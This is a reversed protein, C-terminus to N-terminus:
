EDPVPFFCPAAAPQTDPHFGHPSTPNVTRGPGTYLFCITREITYTTKHHPLFLPVPLSQKYLIILFCCLHFYRKYRVNMTRSIRGPCCQVGRQLPARVPYRYSTAVSLEQAEKTLLWDIFVKANETNPGGKIIASGGIEYATQKPIILKLPYGQQQIKFSDHAWAISAIFEGTAVPSIVDGAGKYYHHVNQDLAKLYDWAADEGLRFIQCATAIYAGGATTPNAWVFVDKYNPDLLDDWTEPMKVGKPALEKEFREENIIISLVGMYWGQWFHNPDNFRADLSDNNPSDYAEFAGATALSGYLDVSGGVLIDAKPNAMEAQVRAVADGGGLSIYEIEIGTDKKFQDAIAITNDENLASYVVLKGGTQGATSGDNTDAPPTDTKGGCAALTLAMTLALALSLFKKM